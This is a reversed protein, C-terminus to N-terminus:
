GNRPNEDDDNWRSPNAEIYDTIRQLDKEDRIIHEYYNRQWIGTANHERGIMRTVAAKYTRIITPLSGKIPKGFQENNDTPARYITGRLNVHTGRGNIVIVGHTHNPMIVHAALEVFPFHEPIAHWCEDTITGFDNLMMEGNQIEGFLMDRRYTVITVFYAGAQSYDYGQLRISKRHHKDPDFKPHPDRTM